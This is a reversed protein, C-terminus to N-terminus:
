LLQEQPVPNRGNRVNNFQKRFKRFEEYNKEASQMRVIIKQHEEPTEIGDTMEQIYTSLENQFSAEMGDMAAEFPDKDPEVQKIFGALGELVKQAPMKGSEALLVHLAKRQEPPLMKQGATFYEWMVDHVQDARTWTVVREATTPVDPIKPSKQVDRVESKKDPTPQESPKGKFNEM